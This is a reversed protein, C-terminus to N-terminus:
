GAQPLFLHIKFSFRPAPGYFLFVCGASQNILAANEPLTLSPLRVM